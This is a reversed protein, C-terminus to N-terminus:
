TGANARECDHPDIRVAVAQGLIDINLVLVTGKNAVTKVYGHLGSFPGTKVRVYDNSVFSECPEVPGIRGASKIERLQHIVQRPHLMDIFHVVLNTLSIKRRRDPNLRTFVYGPFLPVETRVKRRQVRRQKVRLPLHYWCGYLRLYMAVKKETRPKVHLVYWASQKLNQEEEDM